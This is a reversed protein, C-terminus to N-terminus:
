RLSPRELISNEQYNNITTPTPKITLDKQLPLFDKKFESGNGFNVKHTNLLLVAM